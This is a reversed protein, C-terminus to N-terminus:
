LRSKVEVYARHLEGGVPPHFKSVRVLFATQPFLLELDALILEALHEILKVPQQMRQAVAEYIQEYNATKELQDGNQEFPYHLQVDVQYSGGLVREEPHVGHHAHFKMGELVILGM